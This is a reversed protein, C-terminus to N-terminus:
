RTNVEMLDNSINDCIFKTLQLLHRHVRDNHMLHFSRITGCLKTVLEVCLDFMGKPHDSQAFSVLDVIVNKRIVFEICDGIGGDVPERM